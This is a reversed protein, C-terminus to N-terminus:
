NTVSRNKNLVELSDKLEVNELYLGNYTDQMVQVDRELFMIQEQMTIGNRWEHIHVYGLHLYLIALVVASIKYFMNVNNCGSFM